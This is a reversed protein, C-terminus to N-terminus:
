PSPVFITVRHDTNSTVSVFVWYEDDSSTEIMIRIPEESSSPLLSELPVQLYGPRLPVKHPGSFPAGYASPLNVIREALLTDGSEHNRFLRVSVATPTEALNYIRLTSRFNENMPISPFTTRGRRFDSEHIAPVVAGHNTRDANLEYVRDYIVFRDRHDKQIYVIAGPHPPPPCIRCGTPQNIESSPLSGSPPLDWFAAEFFSSLFFHPYFTAPQESQNFIIEEVKWVSASAGRTDGDHMPLLVRDFNPISEISLLVLASLIVSGVM